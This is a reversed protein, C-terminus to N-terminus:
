GFEICTIKDNHINKSKKDVTSIDGQLMLELRGHYVHFHSGNTTIYYYVGRREGEISAQKNVKVLHVKFKSETELSKDDGKRNELVTVLEPIEEKHDFFDWLRLQQSDAVLLKDDNDYLQLAKDAFTKFEFLCEKTVLDYKFVKKDIAVFMFNMPVQSALQM